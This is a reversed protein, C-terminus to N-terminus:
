APQRLDNKGLSPQPFFKAVKLFKSNCFVNLVDRLRRYGYVSNFKAYLFALNHIIKENEIERASKKRRLWKYYSSRNLSLIKCLREIPYDKEEHLEKIAM